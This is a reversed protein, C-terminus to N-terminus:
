FTQLLCRISESSVYYSLGSHTGASIDTSSDMRGVLVGVVRRPHYPTIKVSGGPPLGSQPAIIPCGSFGDVAFSDVYSYDNGLKNPLAFGYGPPTALIGQRIVPFVPENSNSDGPVSPSIPPYGSLYVPWGPFYSNRLQQRTALDDYDFIKYLYDFFLKYTTPDLKAAALDNDNTCESFDTPGDLSCGRWNDSREGLKTPLWLSLRTKKLFKGKKKTPEKHNEGVIHRATILFYDLNWKVIFGTGKSPDGKDFYSTILISCFYDQRLIPSFLM